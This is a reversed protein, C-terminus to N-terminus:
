GGILSQPPAMGSRAYKHADKLIDSIEKKIERARALTKQYVSQGIIYIPQAAAYGQNSMSTLMCQVIVSERQLAYLEREKGIREKQSWITDPSQM